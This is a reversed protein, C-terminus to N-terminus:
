RDDSVLCCFIIPTELEHKKKRGNEPSIIDFMKKISKNILTSFSNRLAKHQLLESTILTVSAGWHATATALTFIGPAQYPTLEIFQGGKGGQSAWITAWLKTLIQFLLSVAFRM